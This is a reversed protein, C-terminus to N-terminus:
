RHALDAVDGAPHAVGLQDLVGKLAAAAGDSIVHHHCMSLHQIDMHRLPELSARFASKDEILIRVSPECRAQTKIGTLTAFLGTIGSAEPMYFCLDTVMLTGSARHLFLSENLKPIGALSVRCLDDGLATDFAPGLEHNLELDPRKLGLGKPGFSVADPYAAIWEGVYLHHMLNPAIIARVPGLTDIAAALDNSRAVPAILALGGTRLRCVSMRTNVRLGYYTQPAAVTWVGDDIEDM